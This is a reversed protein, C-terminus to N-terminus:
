FKKTADNEEPTHLVCPFLVLEYLNKNLVSPFLGSAPLIVNFHIKFFSIRVTFQDIPQLHSGTDPDRSYSLLSKPEIFPLSHKPWNLSQWRTFYSEAGNFWSILWLSLGCLKWNATQIPERKNLCLFSLSQFQFSGSFFILISLLIVFM